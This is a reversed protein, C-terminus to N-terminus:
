FGLAEIMLDVFSEEFHVEPLIPRLTARILEPDIDELPIILHPAFYRNVHMMLKHPQEHDKLGFAVINRYLYLQDKVQLGQPTLSFTILEPPRTGLLIILGTGIIILVAFLFNKTLLAIIFLVVGAGGVYYYWDQSLETPNYEHAQWTITEINHRM